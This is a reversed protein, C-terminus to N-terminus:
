SNATALEQQPVVDELQQELDRVRMEDLIVAHWNSDRDTEPVYNERAWTRLRIEEIFDVELVNSFM